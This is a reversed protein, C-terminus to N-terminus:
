QSKARKFIRQFKSEDETLTLTEKTVVVQVRQSKKGPYEIEIHQDDVFKYKGEVRVNLLPIPLLATGEKTFEATEVKGFAGSTEWKGVILDQPKAACGLLLLPVVAALWRTTRM